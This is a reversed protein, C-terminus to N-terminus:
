AFSPVACRRTIREVVSAPIRYTQRTRASGRNVLRKPTSSPIILVGPENMVLQRVREFSLSLLDALDNITYHKEITASM